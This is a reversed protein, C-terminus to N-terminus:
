KNDSQQDEQRSETQENETGSYGKDKKSTYSIRILAIGAVLLIIPWLDEFDIRPVFRDVLFIVGVAILALGAILSGDQKKPFVTSNKDRDWATTNQKAKAGDKQDQQMNHYSYAPEIPVAIWLIIYILVGGGGFIALLVFLIRIITPDTNLYNAIGGAIGGIVSDTRSRYLGRREEM